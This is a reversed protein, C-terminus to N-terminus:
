LKLRKTKRKDQCEDQSLPMRVKRPMKHGATKKDARREGTQTGLKQMQLEATFLVAQAWGATEGFVERFKDGVRCYVAPTLSSSGGGVRYDRQVLRWMHVDVPVAGLHGLGMLCMCDAVKSGVGPLQQLEAKADEYPQQRLLELWTEGGRRGVEEVSERVYRARYGFGLDRLVAEKVVGVLSTITPFSHFDRDGIRGLFRGYRECLRLVMASIRSIHNNSSCIFALLAELPPQQLLRIGQCCSAKKRFNDDRSWQQYLSPLDVDLRFYDVLTQRDESPDSTPTAVRYQLEDDHHRLIFLKEGVTGAWVKEEEEELQVWRFAQGSSLTLEMNMEKSVVPISEWQKKMAERTM